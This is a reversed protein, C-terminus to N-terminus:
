FKNFYEVIKKTAKVFKDIEQKTNYLYLSARVVSPQNLYEIFPQVCNHGARVCINYMDYVTAVDHAHIGKVNFIVTAIDPNKNYIEVEKIQSLEQILYNKLEQEIQEIKKYTVKQIFEIAAKLSIIEATSQTGAEFKFPADKYEVEESTSNVVMGGGYYIPKMKNLLEQKGFLVGIGTSAGMKYGSFALFDCDLEKVDVKFHPLAQAADLIVTAGVKHAAKIMEKANIKAGTVNSVYTLAVIKTKSTLTKNLNELTLKHEKTLPVYVLKAGVENALEKLPLLLSHHELLSIIIEDEKKLISKAYSLIALNLAETTNKTFVVEGESCNLFQAVTKRTDEVMQTAQHALKYVSRGANTSVFANYKNIERIVSNPKLSSSNNDFYIVHNKKLFDYERKFNIKSM